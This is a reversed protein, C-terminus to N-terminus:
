GGSPEFGGLPLLSANTAMRVAAASVMKGLVTYFGLPRPSSPAVQKEQQLGIPQCKAVEGLAHVLAMSLRARAVRSLTPSMWDLVLM